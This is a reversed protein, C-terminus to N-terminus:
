EQRHCSEENQEQKTFIRFIRLLFSFNFISPTIDNVVIAYNNKLDPSPTDIKHLSYNFVPNSGETVRPDIAKVKNEYSIEVCGTKKPSKEHSISNTTQAINSVNNVRTM